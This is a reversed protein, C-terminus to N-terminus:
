TEEDGDLQARRSIVYALGLIIAGAVIALLIYSMSDSTEEVDKEKVTIYHPATVNWNGYEDETRFTITNRGDKLELQHVFSAELMQFTYNTRDGGADHYITVQLPGGFYAGDIRLVTGPEATDTGPTFLIALVPEQTLLDVRFSKKALNGAADTAVVEVDYIGDETLNMWHIFTGDFAVREPEEGNITVEWDVGDFVRGRIEIIPSNTRVLTENPSYLELHPSITDVIVMITITVENYLPDLARLTIPNEGEGLMIVTEQSGTGLVRKGNVYVQEADNSVTFEVTIQHERTLTGDEPSVLELDPPTADMTVTRRDFVFNGAEDRVTIVIVNEGEELEAWVEFLGDGDPHVPHDIIDTRQRHITMTVAYYDTATGTVLVESTNTATGNTPTYLQMEPPYTDKTVQLVVTAINGALDEASLGFYNLGEVLPFTVDFTGSLASHEELNITFLSGVEVNGSITIQTTNVYLDGTPNTLELLPPTRDMTVTLTATWVNMGYDTVTVSVEMEGEPVDELIISYAGTEDWEVTISRTAGGDLSVTLNFIGSSRDSAFGSIELDLTNLHDGDEPSDISVFPDEPDWLLLLIAEDDQYSRNITMQTVTSTSSLSVLIDYPNLSYVRGGSEIQWSLIPTEAMRGNEDTYITASWNGVQDNFTVNADVVPNGSAFGEKSAWHVDAEVFYWMKIYGIPNVLCTDADFACSYADVFSREAVVAQTATSSIVTTRMTVEMYSFQIGTGNTDIQNNDMWIPVRAPAIQKARVLIADGCRIFTNNALWPQHMNLNDLILVWGVCDTFTNGSVTINGFNDFVTAASRYVQNDLFHFEADYDYVLSPSFYDYTVIAARNDWAMNKQIHAVLNEHDRDTDLFYLIPGRNTSMENGTFDLTAGGSWRTIESLNMFICNMDTINNGEVVMDGGWTVEFFARQPGEGQVINNTFVNDSIVFDSPLRESITGGVDSLFIGNSATNNEIINNVLRIGTMSDIRMLVEDTWCTNNTIENGELVLMDTSTNVAGSINLLMGMNKHFVSDKITVTNNYGDPWDIGRTVVVQGLDGVTNRFFTCDEILATAELDVTASYPERPGAWYEIFVAPSRLQEFTSNTVEFSLQVEEIVTSHDKMYLRIPEHGSRCSANDVSIHSTFTPDATGTYWFDLSHDLIANNRAIVDRIELDFDHPGATDFPESVYARVARNGWDQKTIFDPDISPTVNIFIEENRVNLLELGTISVDRYNRLTVTSVGFLVDISTRIPSGLVNVYLEIGLTSNRFTVDEIDITETTNVDVIPWELDFDLGGISNLQTYTLNFVLTGNVSIDVGKITPSGGRIIICGPFPIDITRVPNSNDTIAIANWAISLNDNHIRLDRVITGSADRLILASEIFDLILVDDIIVEKDTEVEIGYYTDKVTVRTLNMENYVWFRYPVGNGSEITSDNAWLGGKLTVYLAGAQLTPESIRLTSGQLSLNARIIVKGTITVTSDVVVTNNIIEWDGTPPPQDGIIFGGLAGPMFLLALAAIALM